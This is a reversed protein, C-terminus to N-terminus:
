LIFRLLYFGMPSNYILLGNRERKEDTTQQYNKKELYSLKGNFMLNESLNVNRM